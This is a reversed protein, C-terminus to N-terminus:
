QRSPNCMLATTRLLELAQDFNPNRSKRAMNAKWDALINFYLNAAVGWCCRRMSLRAYRSCLSCNRMSVPLDIGVDPADSPEDSPVESGSRMPEVGSIRRSPGTRWRAPIVRSAFASHALGPPLTLSRAAAEMTASARSRPRSVGPLVRRSADLPFVPMAKAM